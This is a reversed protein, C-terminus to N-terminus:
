SASPSVRSPTDLESRQPYEPCRSASLASHRLLAASSESRGCSRPLHAGRIRTSSGLSFGPAPLSLISATEDAGDCLSTQGCPPFTAIASRCGSGAALLESSNPEIACDWILTMGILVVAAYGISNMGVLFATLYVPVLLAAVQNCRMWKLYAYASETGVLPSWKQLFDATMM